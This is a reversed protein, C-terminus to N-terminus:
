ITKVTHIRHNITIVTMLLIAGVANHVVAIFLPLSMVVNLIGLTIQLALVALLVVTFNRAQPYGSCWLRYAFLGIICLVFIAGIRHSLHIAVRAINDLQGGLYNPGIDQLFNFGDAFSAEPWLSNQCLPFDPCALAAYNSSVWGGLAIQIIVAVLALWAIPRLRMFSIVANADAYWHLGAVRQFLLWLLSLTSFGGLLHLTVVQPWLNLTVTWMGFFGQLIVLGAILAPLKFSASGIKARAALRALNLFYAGVLLWLYFDMDDGIAIRAITGAVLVILLILVSGKPQKEEAGRYAYFFIALILLGLSSAIIRHLQEPWTKHHEVPTDVFKENAIAVDSDSTPVWLHGYCTPWDPCGLGADALRTFAGLVVVTLALLVSIISLRSLTKNM